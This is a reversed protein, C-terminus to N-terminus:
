YFGLNYSKTLEYLISSIQNFDQSTLKKAELSRIYEQFVKIALFTNKKLLHHTYASIQPNLPFSPNKQSITTISNTNNKNNNM